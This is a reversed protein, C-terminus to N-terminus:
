HKVLVAAQQGWSDSSCSQGELPKGGMHPTVKVGPERVVCKVAPYVWGQPSLELGWDQGPPEFSGHGLSLLRSPRAPVPTPALLHPPDGAGPRSKPCEPKGEQGIPPSLSPTRSLSSFCSQAHPFPTKVGQEGCADPSEQRWAKAYPQGQRRSRRRGRSIQGM